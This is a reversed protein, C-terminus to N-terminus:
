VLTQASSKVDVARLVSVAGEGNILGGVVVVVVQIGVGTLECRAMGVCREALACRNGIVLCLRAHLRTHARTHSLSSPLPPSPATAFTNTSSQLQWTRRSGMKSVWALCLRSAGAVGAYDTVPPNM